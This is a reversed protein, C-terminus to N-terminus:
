CFTCIYVRLCLLFIESALELALKSSMLLLETKSLFEERDDDAMPLSALNLCAEAGLDTLFRKWKECHPEAVLKIDTEATLEQLRWMIDAATNRCRKKQDIEPPPAARWGKGVSAVLRVKPESRDRSSASEKKRKGAEDRMLKAHKKKAAPDRVALIPIDADVDGFSWSSEWWPFQNVVFPKRKSIRDRRPKDLLLFSVQKDFESDMSNKWTAAAAREDTVSLSRSSVKISVRGADDDGSRRAVVVGGVVDFLRMAPYVVDFWLYDDDGRDALSDKMKRGLECILNEIVM